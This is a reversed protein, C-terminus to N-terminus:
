PDSIVSLCFSFSSPSLTVVSEPSPLSHFGESKKPPLPKSNPLLSRRGVLLVPFQSPGKQYNDDRGRLDVEQTWAECGSSLPGAPLPKVRLPTRM